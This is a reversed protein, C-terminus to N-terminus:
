LAIAAVTDGVLASLGVPVGPTREVVGLAGRLLLRNRGSSIIDLLPSITHIEEEADRWAKATAYIRLLEIHYFMLGRPTVGRPMAYELASHIESLAAGADGLRMLAHGTHGAVQDQNVWWAWEPDRPSLSEELGRRATDLDALARKRDGIKAFAGGRRVRAMLAVRPALRRQSLIEEAIRRAEGPRGCENDLMGLMDLAFWQKSRDGAHRALMHSELFARRASEREGADFLLWGAVEAAESVASLYGRLERDPIEGADLRRQASRWVQVAAPAVADAGYRDAHKLLYTASGKMHAVDSSRDSPEASPLCLSKPAAIESLEGDTQLFEDLAEALQASPRQRGNVVRSLYAVDYNLARATARLSVGRDALLARLRIGFDASM